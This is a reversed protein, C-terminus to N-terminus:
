YWHPFMKPIEAVTRVALLANVKESHSGLVSNNGSENGPCCMYIYKSKSHSDRFSVDQELIDECLLFGLHKM